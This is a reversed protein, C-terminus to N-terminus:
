WFCCTFCSFHLFFRAEENALPLHRTCGVLLNLIGISQSPFSCSFSAVSSILDRTFSSSSSTRLVSFLLFPRLFGSVTEMGLSKNQVIFLLVQQILEQHVETRCSFVQLGFRCYFAYLFTVLLQSFISMTMSKRIKCYDIFSRHM